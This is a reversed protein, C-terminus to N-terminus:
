GVKLTPGDLMGESAGEILTEGVLLGLSLLTLGVLLTLGDLM